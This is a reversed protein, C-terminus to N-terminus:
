TTQTNHDSKKSSSNWLGCTPRTILTWDKILPAVSQSHSCLKSINKPLIETTISRGVNVTYSYGKFINHVLLSCMWFGCIMRHKGTRFCFIIVDRWVNAPTFPFRARLEGTPNRWGSDNMRSAISQPHSLLSPLFLKVRGGRVTTLWCFRDGPKMKQRDLFQRWAKLSAAVSATPRLAFGRIQYLAQTTQVCKM